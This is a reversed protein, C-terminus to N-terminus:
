NCGRTENEIYDPPGAILIGEVEHTNDNIVPSGSNGAVHDNATAFLGLDTRVALVPAEGSFKAPLGGPHGIVSVSTNLSVTGSRRVPLMHHDSVPHDLRILAWDRDLNRDKFSVGSYIQDNRIRYRLAGDDYYRFGFVFRMDTPNIDTPTEGPDHPYQTCHGATAVVDPEVLFGTCFATMGMQQNYFPEDVCLDM